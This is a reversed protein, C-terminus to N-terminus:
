QSEGPATAETSISRNRERIHMEGLAKFKLGEVKLREAEIAELKRNRTETQRYNLQREAIGALYRDRADLAAILVKLESDSIHITPM